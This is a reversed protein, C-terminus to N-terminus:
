TEPIDDHSTDKQRRLRAAEGHVFGIACKSHPPQSKESTSSLSVRLRTSGGKIPPPTSAPSQQSSAM